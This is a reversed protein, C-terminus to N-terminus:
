KYTYNSETRREGTKYSEKTHGRSIAVQAFHVCFFRLDCASLLYRENTMAM